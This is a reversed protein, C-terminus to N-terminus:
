NVVFIITQQLGVNFAIFIIMLVVLVILMYRGFSPLLTAALDAKVQLVHVGQQKYKM